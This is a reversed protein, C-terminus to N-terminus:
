LGSPEDLYTGLMIEEIEETIEEQRLLNSKQKLAASQEDIRRIAGELHRIRQAHETMLSAFFATHLLSFIYHNVLEAFFRDPSLNLRPPYARATEQGYVSSFPPLVPIERVGGPAKEDHHWLTLAYVGRELRLDNLANALAGLIGHVEDAVSPGEFSIMDPYVGSVESALKRGVTIIKEPGGQRRKGFAQLVTTNFDGCFGRESGILLCVHLSSPASAAYLPYFHLFDAAVAAINAVVQQQSLLFRALKRTEMTSINKLASMISSIEGFTKIRNLVERRKTMVNEVQRFADAGM